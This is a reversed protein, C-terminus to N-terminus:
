AKFKHCSYGAASRASPVNTDCTPETFLSSATIERVADAETEGTVLADLEELSSVVAVTPAPTWSM